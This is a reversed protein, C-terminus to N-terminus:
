DGSSLDIFLEQPATAVMSQPDVYWIGDEKLMRLGFCCLYIGKKNNRDILCKLNVWSEASQDAKQIDIIEYSIPVRNQLLTFLKVKPKEQEAKWAPACLELMDDLKNLHWKQLYAVLREAIIEEEAKEPDVPASAKEWVATPKESGPYAYPINHDVCYREAASEPYVWLFHLGSGDFAYDQIIYVSQPITVETLSRCGDFVNNGIEKLGDPLVLDSLSFCDTFLGYGIDTVGDPIRVHDLSHCGEFAKLGIFTVSDPISISRLTDIGFAFDSIDIVTDPIIISVPSIHEGPYEEYFQKDLYFAGHGIITVTIGDLSSPILVEEETFLYQTIRATGDPLLTYHYPGCVLDESESILSDACSCFCAFICLLLICIGSLLRKSMDKRGKKSIKIFVANTM